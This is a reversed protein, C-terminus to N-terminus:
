SLLAHYSGNFGMCGEVTKLGYDLRYKCNLSSYLGYDVSYECDLECEGMYGM